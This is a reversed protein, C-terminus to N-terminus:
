RLLEEPVPTYHKGTVLNAMVKEPGGRSDILKVQADNARRDADDPDVIERLHALMTARLQAHLPDAALNTLEEPDTELDFLEPEFGVYHIYKYRGKRLMFSGSPSRAAHYESFAIREPDNAQNALTFLSTGPTGDTGHELGTAHLVSPHVDILNVPTTKVSNEPVGEGAIIMPIASAEEYHNSKGWMLRTGGNEGHDSTYIIRTRDTLGRENLTNLVMGIQADVFSCLGLYAATAIQHQQTTYDRAATTDVYTQLWPHPRYGSEVGLKPPPMDDPSYLSFFEDPAVLPYHPTVFSVFLVWPKAHAAAEIWECALRAVKRDYQTYESEGRGAEPIIGSPRIPATFGPFQRRISLHVMGVGDKVHMPIHQADLGVPDSEARYHLKGISEVRHGAAQLRHGWGKVAGDYGMSNDWYGTDHVYRGTAFSARAPVCIPCPTYANAFRTGRAALGDLNPTKVLPHGVAGLMKANHEDAMIVLLNQADM